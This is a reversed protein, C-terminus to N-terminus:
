RARHIRARFAAATADTWCVAAREALPLSAWPRGEFTVSGPLSTLHDPLWGALWLALATKGSRNGGVIAVREGQEISLRIGSLITKGLQKFEPIDVEILAM